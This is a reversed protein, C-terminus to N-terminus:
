PVVKQMNRKQGKHVQKTSRSVSPRLQDQPAQPEPIHRWWDSEWSQLFYLKPNRSIANGIWSEDRFCIYGQTGPYPTVLGVRLRSVFKAKPEPIPRWWDSEWGQFLYLTPNQSLDDGIRSKFKFCSYLRPKQSITNSSGTYPTRSLDSIFYIAQTYQRYQPTEGQVCVFMKMTVSRFSPFKIEWFGNADSSLIDQKYIRM